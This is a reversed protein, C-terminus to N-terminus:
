SIFLQTRQDFGEKYPLLSRIKKTIIAMKTDFYEYQIDAYM